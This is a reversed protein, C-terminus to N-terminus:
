WPWHAWTRSVSEERGSSGDGDSGASLETKVALQTATDVSVTRKRIRCAGVYVRSAKGSM